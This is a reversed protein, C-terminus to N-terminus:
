ALVGTRHVDINYFPLIAPSSKVVSGAEANYTIFYSHKIRNTEVFNGPEVNKSWVNVRFYSMSDEEWLMRSKVMHFDHPTGLEGMVADEVESRLESERQSKPPAANVGTILDLTQEENNEKMTNM